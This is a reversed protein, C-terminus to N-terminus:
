LISGKQSMKAVQLAMTGANGSDYFYPNNINDPDSPYTAPAQLYSDLPRRVDNHQQPYATKNYNSIYLWPYTKGFPMNKAPDYNPDGYPDTPNVKYWGPYYHVGVRYFGDAAHAGASLGLCTALVALFRTSIKM